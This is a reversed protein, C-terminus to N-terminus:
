PTAYKTKLYSEVAQRNAISLSSDYLLVEAVDGNLPFGGAIRDGISPTGSAATNATTGISTGDVWLETLNVGNNSFSCVHWATGTGDTITGSSFLTILGGVGSAQRLELTGQGVVFTMGFSVATTIKYVVFGTLGSAATIAPCALHDDTGDFRIVPKGNQIATKYTPKKAETAQAAHNGLGSSDTWSAVADNDSLALADAKLWLKLGSLSDPSFGASDYNIRARNIKGGAPRIDAAKAVAGLALTSIFARRKIM